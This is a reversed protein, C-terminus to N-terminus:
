HKKSMLEQTEKMILIDRERQLQYLERKTNSLDKGLTKITERSLKKTNQLKKIMFYHNIFMLTVLILSLELM